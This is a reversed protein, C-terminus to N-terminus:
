PVLSARWLRPPQGIASVDFYAQSATVLPVTNPVVWANTPGFQLLTALLFAESDVRGHEYSM